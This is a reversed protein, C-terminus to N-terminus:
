ALTISVPCHDSGAGTTGLNIKGPNARAYALYEAFNNYPLSVPGGPALPMVMTVPKSPYPAQALTTGSTMFAALAACSLTAKMWHKPQQM